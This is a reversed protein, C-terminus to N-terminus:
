LHIYGALVAVPISINGIVIILTTILALQHLGRNVAPNNWGLTQFMSWIGHYLHLGLALMSVVYFGTVWPNSFGTVVNAFVDGEVFNPHVSGFTLHLLHYIIFLLLIPGSWRMTRSAYDSGTPAWRKYGDPRSRWSMVSLQYAAVIHLVVASLLVFRAVWLLGHTHRLFVSYANLAERGGFFPFAQLNGILHGIVFGYGILGTVAMLAKKGISSRYLAVVMTMKASGLEHLKCNGGDIKLMECWGGVRWIVFAGM